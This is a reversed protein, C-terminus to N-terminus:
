PDDVLGRVAVADAFGAGAVALLKVAAAVENADANEEARAVAGVDAATRRRTM